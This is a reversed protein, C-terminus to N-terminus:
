IKYSPRLNYVVKKEGAMKLRSNPGTLSIKLEVIICEM